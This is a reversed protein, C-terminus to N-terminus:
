RLYLRPDDPRADLHFHDRHGVNYHPTLVSSFRGTQHLECAVSLLTRGEPTRPPPGECTRHEPTAEFHREVSLWGGDTWLRPVDLALGMTHFSIRPRDRVASSVDVGRVGHRALVRALDPLRAAMECSLVLPQDDRLSRFWVGGVPGLLEVPTPVPNPLPPLPRVPVGLARLEALCQASPRISWAARADVRWTAGPIAARLNPFHPIRRAIHRAVAGAPDDAPAAFRRPRPPDPPPPTVPLATRVAAAPQAPDGQGRAGADAPLEWQSDFYGLELPRHPGFNLRPRSRTTSGDYVVYDPLFDPLNHGRAVAEPTVGAQVILYRGPALPNPYIFRVGVDRGGHHRAGVTVGESTVAIPLQGAVRELIAHSGPTAYLVLNASKMREEDVQTDAVVQQDFDWLWLPWGSSGKRAARELAETHEPNGTGYVHLTPGYYADTLPGSLGPRKVRAASADPPFGPRWGDAGRVLHLAHGLSSRPGHYAEKGDIVVRVTEGELPATRLDFRLARVGETTAELVGQRAVADVRALSPYPEIRTVTVWHQRNARYDGTVVTVRAPSPNRRVEALHEYVRGHRHALYLIDHGTDYWTGQNPLELADLTRSLEQVFHPKMPGGDTRGHYYRFDTNAVNPALQLGSWGEMAAREEPRPQGGAYQFWSPAGAMAQVAAFRWAHRMGIAYAGVGGNSLGGLVIRDPDVTYHRRVDDIVDLVDQEGMWRWMVQGFGTPAVVIWDPKWRPEYDDYLHDRYKEWPMNNGLVVGLFLNGNSSGGHLAVYLPYPKDPDYDPPVYIAYGQLRTSLPSRYGRNVISGRADLYPDRGKKAQELYRAARARWAASQAAFRGGIRESTELLYEISTLTGAPVPPRTAARLDAVGARLSEAPQAHAPVATAGLLLLLCWQKRLHMM